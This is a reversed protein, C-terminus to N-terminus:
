PLDLIAFGGHHRWTLTLEWPYRPSKLFLYAKTIRGHENVSQSCSHSAHGISLLPSANRCATQPGQNIGRGLPPPRMRVAGCFHQEQSKLIPLSNLGQFILFWFYINSCSYFFNSWRSHLNHYVLSHFHILASICLRLVVCAKTRVLYNLSLFRSHLHLFKEAGCLCQSM